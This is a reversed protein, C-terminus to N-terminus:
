TCHEGLVYVTTSAVAINENNVARETCNVRTGNMGVSVPNIVLRSVLPLEDRGSVRSVNFFTSNVTLNSIQQATGDSAIYRNFMLVQGQDNQLPSSIWLLISANTSCTLSLEGEECVVAEGSPSLVLGSSIIINIM